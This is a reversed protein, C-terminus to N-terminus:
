ADNEEDEPEFQIVTEPTSIALSAEMLAGMMELRNEDFCVQSASVEVEGGDITIIALPLDTADALQVLFAITKVIDDPLHSKIEANHEPHLDIIKETM